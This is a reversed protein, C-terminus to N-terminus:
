FSGHKLRRKLIAIQRKTGNKYVNRKINTLAWSDINYRGYDLKDLVYFNGHTLITFSGLRSKIKIRKFGQKDRIIEIRM